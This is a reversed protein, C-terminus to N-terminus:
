GEGDYLGDKFEGEYILNNLTDYAMGKGEYKDNAFEGYYRRNGNKPDFETGKGSKLGKEFNGVYIVKGLSNVMKGSGEYKNSEFNGSYVLNGSSDYIEGNGEYKGMNFNGKYVLNGELDYQIGSGSPVGSSMQGQYILKGDINKLKAKGSFQRAKASNIPFKAYWLKGELNPHILNTYIFISGGIVMFALFIFKKAFYLGLIKYYDDKSKPASSVTTILQRLKNQLKQILINSANQIKSAIKSVSNIQSHIVNTFRSFIQSFIGISAM